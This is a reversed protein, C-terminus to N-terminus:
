QRHRSSFVNRGNLLAERAGLVTLYSVLILFPIVLLLTAKGGANNIGNIDSQVESVDNIGAFLLIHASAVLFFTFTIFAIALILNLFPRHM